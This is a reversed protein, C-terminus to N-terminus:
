QVVAWSTVFWRRELAKFSARFVRVTEDTSSRKGSTTTWQRLVVFAHRRRRNLSLALVRGRVAFRRLAVVAGDHRRQESRISRALRGAAFRRQRRLSQAASRPSWTSYALAFGAVAAAPTAAGRHKHPPAPSHQEAGGMEIGACGALLLTAALLLM